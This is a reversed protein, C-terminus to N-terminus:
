AATVAKSMTEDSGKRGRVFAVGALALMAAGFMPLSSPLPVASLTIGMNITDSVTSPSKTTGSLEVFYNGATLTGSSYVGSAVNPKFQSAAISSILTGAGIVGQYFGYAVSTIAPGTTKGPPLSITNLFTFDISFPDSSNFTFYDNFTNSKGTTANATGANYPGGGSVDGLSVVAAQVSTLGAGLVFLAGMLASVPRM